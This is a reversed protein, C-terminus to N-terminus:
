DEHRGPRSPLVTVRRGFLRADVSYAGPGLRPPAAADLVAILSFLGRSHDGTVAAALAVGTAVISMLPTLFGAAVCACVLVIGAVSLPGYSVGAHGVASFAFTGVVSFRLLLLAVGPAGHPFM